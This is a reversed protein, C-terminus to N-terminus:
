KQHLRNPPIYQKKVTYIKHPLSIRVICYIICVPICMTFALRRATYLRFEVIGVKGHRRRCTRSLHTVDGKAWIGNRRSGLFKGLRPLKTSTPTISNPSFPFTVPFNAYHFKPKLWCAKIIHQTCLYMQLLAPITRCLNTTNSTLKINTLFTKTTSKETLTWQVTTHLM